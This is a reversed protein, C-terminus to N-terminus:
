NIIYDYIGEDIIDAENWELKDETNAERVCKIVDHFDPFPLTSGIPVKKNIWKELKKAPGPPQGARCEIVIRPETLMKTDTLQCFKAYTRM